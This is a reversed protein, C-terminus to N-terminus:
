NGALGPDIRRRDNEGRRVVRCRGDRGHRSRAGRPGVQARPCPRKQSDFDAPRNDIIARKTVVKRVFTPDAARDPKQLVDHTQPQNLFAAPCPLSLALIEAVFFQGPLSSADGGQDATM